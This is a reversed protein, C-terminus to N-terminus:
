LPRGTEYVFYSLALPIPFLLFQFVFRLRRSLVESYFFQPVALDGRTSASNTPSHPFQPFPRPM